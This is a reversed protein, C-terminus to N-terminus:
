CDFVKKIDGVKKQVRGENQKAIGKDRLNPKSTARGAAEQAKGKLIKATGAAKDRTSSKM